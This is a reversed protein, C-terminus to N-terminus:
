STKSVRKRTLSAPPPPPGEDDGKPAFLAQIADRRAQAEQDLDALIAQAKASFEPESRKRAIHADIAQRLEDVLPVDDVRAMLTLLAHEEDEVRIAITRM